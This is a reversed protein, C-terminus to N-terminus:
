KTLKFRFYKITTLTDPPFTTDMDDKESNRTTRKLGVNISQLEDPDRAQESARADSGFTSLLKLSCVWFVVVLWGDCEVTCLVVVCGVISGMVREVRRARRLFAEVM